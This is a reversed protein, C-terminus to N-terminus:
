ARRGILWKNEWSRMKEEPINPAKSRPVTREGYEKRLYLGALLGIGLGALHAANAIGSPVFLGVLDMGAWVFSAVVMPMPVYSVYVVMRPRLAALAGLIGFIAGSAGLSAEYLPLTALSGILGAVFYIILFKRGGIVRELIMGFFILAFMNSILHNVGAHAFMSTVLTWPHSLVDASVLALGDTLPEIAVQLMFVLVCVAALKVSWYM